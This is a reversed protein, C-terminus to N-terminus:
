LGASSAPFSFTTEKCWSHGFEKAEYKALAFLVEYLISHVPINEWGM